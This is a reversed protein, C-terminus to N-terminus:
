FFISEKTFIGTVNNLVAVIDDSGSVEDEDHKTRQVAVAKIRGSCRRVGKTSTGAKNKFMKVAFSDRVSM